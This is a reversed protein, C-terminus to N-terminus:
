YDPTTGGTGFIGGIQEAPPKAEPFLQPTNESTQITVTNVDKQQTKSTAQKTYKKTAGPKAPIVSQCHINVILPGGAVPPTEDLGKIICSYVQFRALSPHGVSFIPRDSPDKVPLLAPVLKDWQQEDSKTYIHLEFMFEPQELGKIIAGGGDQGSAKNKEIRLEKKINKLYVTGPLYWEGIYPKDWYRPATIWSPLDLIELDAM